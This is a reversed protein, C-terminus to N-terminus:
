SPKCPLNGRGIRCLVHPRPKFRALSVLDVCFYRLKTLSAFEIGVEGIGEDIEASRVHLFMVVTRGDSRQLSRQLQAGVELDSVLKETICEQGLAVGGFGNRM